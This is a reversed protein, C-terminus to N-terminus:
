DVIHGKGERIDFVTLTRYSLFQVRGVVMYAAGM